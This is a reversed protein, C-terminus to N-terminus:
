RLPSRPHNWTIRPLVQNVELRKATISRSCGASINEATSKALSSTQNFLIAKWVKIIENPM